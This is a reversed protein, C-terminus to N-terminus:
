LSFEITVEGVQQQPVGNEIRPLFRWKIVADIVATDFVKPPKSDIIYHKIVKGEEDVTLRITVYGTIGARLAERPYMPQVRHIPILGSNKAETQNVNIAHHDSMIEPTILLALIIFKIM